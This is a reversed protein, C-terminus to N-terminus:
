RYEVGGLYEDFFLLAKYASLNNNYCDEFYDLNDDVLENSYTYTTCNSKGIDSANCDLQSKVCEIYEKFTKM